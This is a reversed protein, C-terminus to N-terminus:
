ELVNLGGPAPKKSRAWYSFEPEWDEEGRGALPLIHYVPCFLDGPGFTTSNLKAIKQGDRRYVVFGPYNDQGPSVSQERIYDGGGHSALRYRWGRSNAFARQVDPPDKSLLVVSFDNELHPLFGNLGDAWLTCHRCTQGMNHIAFLISKDGFLNLLSTKGEITEFEYNKVPTPPVAKRLANLQSIKAQIESELKEIDDM